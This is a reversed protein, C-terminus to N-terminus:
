LLASSAAYVYSIFIRHIHKTQQYGCVTVISVPLTVVREECCVNDEVTYVKQCQSDASVVQDIASLDEWSKSYVYSVLM